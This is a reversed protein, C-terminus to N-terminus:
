ILDHTNHASIKAIRRKALRLKKTPVEKKLIGEKKTGVDSKSLGKPSVLDM